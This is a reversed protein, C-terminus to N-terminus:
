EHLARLVARYMAEELMELTEATLTLAVEKTEGKEPESGSTEKAIDEPKIGYMSELARLTPLTIGGACLAASLHNRNYGMRKSADAMNTRRIALEAMLKQKSVAFKTSEGRAM